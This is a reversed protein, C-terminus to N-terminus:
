DKLDTIFNIIKQANINNLWKSNKYPESYERIMEVIRKREETITSDIIEIFRNIYSEKYYDVNCESNEEDEIIENLIEEFKEVAKQKVNKM